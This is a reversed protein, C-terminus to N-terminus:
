GSIRLYKKFMETAIGRSLQDTFWMEQEHMAAVVKEHDYNLPTAQTFDRYDNRASRLEFGRKVIENLYAPIEPDFLFDAESTATRFAQLDAFDPQFDRVVFRLVETVKEYVHLRREYVNFEFSRKNVKYQQWAIYVAIAAIVPTLLGQLVQLGVAIWHPSDTM